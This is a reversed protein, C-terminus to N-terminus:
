NGTKIVYSPDCVVMKCQAIQNGSQVGCVKGSEDYIIKDIDTNLM